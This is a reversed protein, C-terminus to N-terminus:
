AVGGQTRRRVLWQAAYALFAAGSLAGLIAPGTTNEPVAVIGSAEVAKPAADVETTTVDEDSVPAASASPEATPAVAPEASATPASEPAATPAAADPAAADPAAVPAADPAGASAKTTTKTTTTKTTSTKTTSPKSTTGSKTGSGSTSGTKSPSSTKTDTGSGSGSSNQKALWDKYGTARDWETWPIWQGDAYYVRNKAFDFWAGPIYTCETDDFGPLTDQGDVYTQGDDGKVVIKHPNDAPNSVDAHAAPALGLVLVALGAAAPATIAIRKM